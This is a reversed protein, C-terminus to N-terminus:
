ASSRKIEQYHNSCLRKYGDDTPTGCSAWANCGPRDCAMDPAPRPDSWGLVAFGHELASLGGTSYAPAGNHSGEHAFQTVLDEVAERLEANTHRM